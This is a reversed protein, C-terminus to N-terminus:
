GSITCKKVKSVDFSSRMRHLKKATKSTKAAKLDSIVGFKVSIDDPLQKLGQKIRSEAKEKELLREALPRTQNYSIANQSPRAVAQVSQPRAYAAANNPRNKPYQLDGYAQQLMSISEQKRIHKLEAQTRVGQASAARAPALPTFDEGVIIKGDRQVVRLNKLRENPKTMNKM